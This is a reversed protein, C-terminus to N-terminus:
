RPPQAGFLTGIIGAAAGGYSGLRELLGPGSPRTPVHTPEPVTIGHRAQELARERLLRALEIEEQSPPGPTWPFRPVPVTRGRLQIPPIDGSSTGRNLLTATRAMTDLASRALAGQAAQAELGLRQRALDAELMMRDYNQQWESRLTRDAKEGMSFAGLLSAIQASSEPSQFVRGLLGRVGPSAAAATAAAAPAGGPLGAMGARAALPITKGPLTSGAAGAATKGAGGLLGTWGTGPVGFLTLAAGGVVPGWRRLQAGFGENQNVNGAPDVELGGIDGVHTRIWQAAQKRQADTLRIPGDPNVGLSRLYTRYAENARLERNFADLQQETM